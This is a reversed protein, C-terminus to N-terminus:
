PGSRCDSQAPAIRVANQYSQAPLYEATMRRARAVAEAKVPLLVPKRNMRRNIAAFDFVAETM